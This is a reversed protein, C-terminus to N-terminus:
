DHIQELLQLITKQTEKFDNKLAKDLGVFILSIYEQSSFLNEEKQLLRYSERMLRKLRNRKVARKHTKKSVVFGVKTPIDLDTKKRGVWLIIGNKFYSHKIKYTASFASKNKLRFSKKLM